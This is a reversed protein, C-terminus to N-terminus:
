VRSKFILLGPCSIDRLTERKHVSLPSAMGTIERPSKRRICKEPYSFSYLDIKRHKDLTTLDWYTALVRSKLSLVKEGFHSLNCIEERLTLRLHM